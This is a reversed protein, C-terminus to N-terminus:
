AEKAPANPRLPSRRVLRPGNWLELNEGFLQKDWIIAHEDTDCFFARSANYQGDEAVGFARYDPM